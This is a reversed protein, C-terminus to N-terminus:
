SRNQGQVSKWVARQAKWRRALPRAEPQAALPLPEASFSACTVEAGPWDLAWHGALGAASESVSVAVAPGDDLRVAVTTAAFALGELRAVGEVAQVRDIMVRPNPANLPPVTEACFMMRQVYRPMACASQGPILLRAPYGQAASLPHGDAELALLAGDLDSLAIGQLAGDYGAIQVSQAEPSVGAEALLAALPIGTWVRTEWQNAKLSHVACVLTLRRSQQPLHRLEDLTFVRPADALGILSLSAQEPKPAPQRLRSYQICM